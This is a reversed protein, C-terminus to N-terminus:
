GNWKKQFLPPEPSFFRKDGSFGRFGVLKIVIGVEIVVGSPAKETYSDIAPCDVENPNNDLLANGGPLRITWPLIRGALIWAFTFASCGTGDQRISKLEKFLRAM